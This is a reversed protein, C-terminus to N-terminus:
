KVCMNTPLTLMDIVPLSDPLVCFPTWLWVSLCFLILSLVFSIAENGYQNKDRELIGLLINTQWSYINFNWLLCLVFYKKLCDFTLQTEHDSSHVFRSLQIKRQLGPLVRPSNRMTQQRQQNLPCPSSQNQYLCLSRFIFCPVLFDTNM